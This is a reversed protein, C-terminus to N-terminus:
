LQPLMIDVAAYGSEDMSSAFKGVKPTAATGGNADVTPTLSGSAALYAIAGETPNGTINDITVRGKRLLTCRQGVLLEDKHFNIHQRTPDISVQDNMLLGAPTKGSPNVFNDVSGASDGLAVGSGSTAYCLTVGRTQATNLIQTIDTELIVRNAKISM